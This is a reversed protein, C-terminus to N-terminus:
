CVFWPMQGEWRYWSSVCKLEERYTSPVEQATKGEISSLTLTPIHIHSRNPKGYGEMEGLHFGQQNECGYKTLVNKGAGTSQVPTLLTPPFGLEETPNGCSLYGEQDRRM